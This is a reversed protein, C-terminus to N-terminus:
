GSFDDPRIETTDAGADAVADLEDDRRLVHPELLHTDERLCADLHYSLVPQLIERRFAFAEPVRKAPVEDTM